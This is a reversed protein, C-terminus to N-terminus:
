FLEPGGFDQPTQEVSPAVRSLIVNEGALFGLRERYFFLNNLKQGVFSPAPSSDADGVSRSGWTIKSFVFTGDTQRVLKHPMTAADLSNQLGPAVTEKWMQDEYKVFFSSKSDGQEGRVEITYGTWFDPPLQGMGSVGERFALMGQDGYSDSVSYTFTTNDNKRIRLVSGMRDVTFTGTPILSDLASAIITSLANHGDAAVTATYAVGNLTLTYTQRAVAAIIYVFAAYDNTYSAAASMAVTKGRNVVFTTDAVTIFAFSDRPTTTDLYSVGDPTTVTKESGTLLDYVKIQEDKAVV